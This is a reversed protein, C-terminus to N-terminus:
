GCRSCKRKGSVESYLVTHVSRKLGSCGLSNHYRDGEKAIYVTEEALNNEVCKECAKYRGGNENRASKIQGSSIASISLKLHTCNESLHYVTGSETVYVHKQLEDSSSGEEGGSGLTKKVPLGVFGRTKVRQVVLSKKEGFFPVPFRIQYRATIEIESDTNNGEAMSVLIGYIGGSICTKNISEKDLYEYFRQKLLLQKVGESLELEEGAKEYRSLFKGAETIASQVSDQLYLFQFFYLFFLIAFIFVPLVLSAEVTLSAEKSKRMDYKLTVNRM